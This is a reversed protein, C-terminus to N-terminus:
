RRGEGVVSYNGLLQDYSGTTPQPRDYMRLGGIEVAEVAERPAVPEGHLLLRVAESDFCSLDLAKEIAARLEIYGHQRGLQLVEIM